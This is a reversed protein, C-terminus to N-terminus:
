FKPMRPFDCSAADVELFAVVLSSKGILLESDEAHIYNRNEACLKDASISMGVGTWCTEEGGLLVM